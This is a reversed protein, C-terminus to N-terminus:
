SKGRIWPKSFGLEGLWRQATPISAPEAAICRPETGPTQGTSSTTSSCSSRTKSRTSSSRLWCSAWWSPSPWGWPSAGWCSSTATSGTSWNTSAATPTSSPAPRWTAGPRCARGACPTSSPRMPTRCAAPSLCPAGSGAPTPPPVTSICTRPGTRTPSAEAAASSRRGLISSTRCTWTTVTISSPATSSRASRGAHRTPSSLAWCAPQWSCSSSSPSASPSSRALPPHRRLPIGRSHHWPGTPAGRSPGAAGVPSEGGAAPLHEGALLRRLRLLHHPLHPRRGRRALCCPGGGPLGDGGRGRRADGAAGAGGPIGRGAGEPFTAAGGLAAAGYRDQEGRPRAAPAGVFGWRSGGLDGWFEGAHKLLRAYVGVAVMVMSIVWFLMNFFFLVYKVAPSVFSFDEGPPGPLGAARRAM